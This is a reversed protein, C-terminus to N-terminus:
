NGARRKAREKRYEERKKEQEIKFRIKDAQIKADKAFAFDTKDAVSAFYELAKDQDENVLEEGVKYRYYDAYRSNPFQDIFSVRKTNSVVGPMLRGFDSQKISKLKEYATLDDGVPQEVNLTVWDTEYSEDDCQYIARMRYEGIEGFYDKLGYELKESFVFTQGPEFTMPKNTYAGHSSNPNLQKVVYTEGSPKQIELRIWSLHITGGLNVKETIQNAFTFQLGFPDLPLVSEKPLMISFSLRDREPTTQGYIALMAVVFLIVTAVIYPLKYKM